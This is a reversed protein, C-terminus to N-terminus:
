SCKNPARLGNLDACKSNFIICLQHLVAVDMRVSTSESLSGEAILGIERSDIM